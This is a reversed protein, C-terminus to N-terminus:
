GHDMTNPTLMVMVTTILSHKPDTMLLEIELSPRSLFSTLTCHTRHHLLHPLRKKLSDLELVMKGHDMTNPTKMVVMVMKITTVTLKPDTMLLEIEPSPKSLFSTLTCHTRHHLLHPLRKKLSDLELVMKGHDMTNPTKMVVMVMKIMTVTLKLDTM